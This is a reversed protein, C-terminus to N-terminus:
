AQTDAIRPGIWGGGDEIPNQRWEGKDGGQTGREVRIWDYAVHRCVSHVVDHIDHESAGEGLLLPVLIELELLDDERGHKSNCGGYSGGDQHVIPEEVEKFQKLRGEQRGELLIRGDRSGHHSSM